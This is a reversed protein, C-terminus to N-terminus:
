MTMTRRRRRRRWTEGGMERGRIKVWASEDGGEGKVGKVAMVDVFM